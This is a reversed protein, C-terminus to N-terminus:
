RKKGKDDDTRNVAGDEKTPPAEAYFIMEPAKGPVRRFEANEYTPLDTSVFQRVEKLRVLRCGECSEVVCYRALPSVQFNFTSFM